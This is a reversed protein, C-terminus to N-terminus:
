PRRDRRRRRIRWVVLAALVIVAVTIAAARGFLEEVRSYSAGALYGILVVAVGWVLGGAANFALFTRYRLHSAGALFPMTARLFAVFRGLFVAPGGRRALLARADDIRARRRALPKFELLRVGYHRGIEYGVNDGLIAAGVVIATMAPLSTRGLSATVGGLVAVTEGPIVFGIFLADEAFVFLGVVLYVLGVPLGTLRDLLGSM